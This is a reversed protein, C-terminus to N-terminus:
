EQQLLFAHDTAGFAGFAIHKLIFTEGNVNISGVGDTHPRGLQAFFADRVSGDDPGDQLSTVGCEFSFATANNIQLSVPAGTNPGGVITDGDREVTLGNSRAADALASLDPSATLCVSQFVAFGAAFADSGDGLDPFVADIAGEVFTADAGTAADLEGQLAAIQAAEQAAPGGSPAFVGSPSQTQPGDRVTLDNTSSTTACAAMSLVALLTLSGRMM